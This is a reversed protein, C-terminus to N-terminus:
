KFLLISEIPAFLVKIITILQFEDKFYYLIESAILMFGYLVVYPKIPVSHRKMYYVEYTIIVIYAIAIIIM